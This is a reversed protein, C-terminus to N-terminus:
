IGGEGITNQWLLDSKGDDNFDTPVTAPLIEIDSDADGNVHTVGFADATLNGGLTYTLSGGGSLGVTLTTNSGNLTPTASIANTNALELRDGRSFDSITGTYNQTTPRDIRLKGTTSQFTLAEGTASGLEVESEAGIEFQGTGAIAGTVTVSAGSTAELVGNNTVSSINATGDAITLNAFAGIDLLGSSTANGHVSVTAAHSAAGFVEFSAGGANSLGGLSVTMAAGLTGNNPGAQVTNTNALTGDITLGGGGDGGGVDVYLAGGNSFGGTVVL